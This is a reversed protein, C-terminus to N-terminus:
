EGTRPKEKRQAISPSIGKKTQQTPLLSKKQLLRTLDPNPVPRSFLFGQVEDCGSSRLFEMQLNTEVGEAVVRLKLSHAMAIIAATIAADNPDNTIDSIFSRDAKLTQFPYKNLYGLASYGSGFDDLSIGVGLDHLQNLTELTIELDKIATSETIELELTEPAMGTENLVDMVM